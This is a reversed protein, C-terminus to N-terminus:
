DNRSIIIFNEGHCKKCFTYFGEQINKCQLCEVRYDSNKNDREEALLKKLKLGAENERPPQPKIPRKYLVSITSPLTAGFTMARTSSNTGIAEWGAKGLRNMENIDGSSWKYEWLTVDAQNAEDM